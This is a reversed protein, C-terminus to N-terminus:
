NKLICCLTQFLNKSNTYDHCDHLGIRLNTEWEKNFERAIEVADAEAKSYGVLWCENRPLKKLQRMLVTGPVARGNLAALAVYIDEPDKPQFDFGLVQSSSSPKIIVMFHQFDWFNLSYAASMLLQPPRKTGRLPMAAAYVEDRGRIMASNWFLSVM